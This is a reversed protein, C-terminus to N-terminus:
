DNECASPGGLQRHAEQEILCYAEDHDHETANIGILSVARTHNRYCSKQYRTEKAVLERLALIRDNMNNYAMKFWGPQGLGSLETGTDDQSVQEM